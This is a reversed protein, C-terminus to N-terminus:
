HTTTHTHSNASRNDATKASRKRLPKPSSLQNSCHVQILKIHTHRDTHTHTHTDTQTHTNTEHIHTRAATHTHKYSYNHTLELTHINTYNMDDRVAHMTGQFAILAPGGGQTDEGALFSPSM